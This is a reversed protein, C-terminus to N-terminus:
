MGRSSLMDPSAADQYGSVFAEQGQDPTEAKGGSELLTKATRLADDLDKAPKMAYDENAEDEPGGTDPQEMGVTFQGTQTNLEIRVCVENAEDDAGQDPQDPSAQPPLSSM